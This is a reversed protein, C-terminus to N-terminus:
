KYNTFMCNYSYNYNRICVIILLKLQTYMCQYTYNYKITKLEVYSIVLDRFQM